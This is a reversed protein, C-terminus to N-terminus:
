DQKILKFVDENVRLIYSSNAKDTIDLLYKYENLKLLKYDILEGLLNYVTVEINKANVDLTYVGSSPNPYVDINIPSKM